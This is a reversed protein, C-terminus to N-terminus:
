WVTVETNGRGGAPQVGTVRAPILPSSHGIAGSLGGIVVGGLGGVLSRM